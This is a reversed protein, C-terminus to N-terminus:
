DISAAKRRIRYGLMIEHTGNPYYGTIFSQNYAYGVRIDPSINLGFVVTMQRSSRFTLGIDFIERPGSLLGTPHKFRVTANGELITLNYRNVVQLGLYYSFMGSDTNKYMVSAYRHNANLLLNDPKSISFLHTSSISIIFHSSQFEFGVHADPRIIRALDYQIAPDDAIEAEFVSGNVSRSFVGASLGLSLSWDGENAIRYAYTLMPNFAQTAGIRDGSLSLGFAARLKHIYESAQLNFVKPAGDIGTWQRRIDSFLYLYDPRAISAPNYQARNYWHTAMNIDSQAFVGAGPMMSILIFIFVLLRMM